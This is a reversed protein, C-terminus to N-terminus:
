SSPDLQKGLDSGIQRGGARICFPDLLDDAVQKGIADAVGWRATQDRGRHGGRRVGQADVHAVRTLPGVGVMRGAYELAEVPPWSTVNEATGDASRASMM